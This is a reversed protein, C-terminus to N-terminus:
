APTQVRGIHDVRRHGDDGRNIEVVLDEQAISDLLDSGFLRANQLAAHRSHKRPLPRFSLRHKIGFGLFEADAYPTRGFELYPIQLCVRTAATKRADFDRERSLM